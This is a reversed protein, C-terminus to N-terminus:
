ARFDKKPLKLFKAVRNRNVKMDTQLSVDSREILEDIAELIKIKATNNPSIFLMKSTIM